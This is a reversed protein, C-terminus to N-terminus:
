LLSICIISGNFGGQITKVFDLYKYEPFHYHTFVTSSTKQMNLIVDILSTNGAKLFTWFVKLGVKTTYFHLPTPNNMQSM